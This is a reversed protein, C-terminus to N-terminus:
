TDQDCVLPAVPKLQERLDDCPKAVVHDRALDVDLFDSGRGLPFPRVDGENPEPQARLVGELQDRLDDTFGRAWHDCQQGRLIWRVDAFSRLAADEGVDHVAISGLQLARDVNRQLPERLVL